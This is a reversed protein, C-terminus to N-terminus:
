VILESRQMSKRFIQPSPLSGIFMPMRRLQGIYEKIYILIYELIKLYISRNVPGMDTMDFMTGMNVTTLHSTWVM